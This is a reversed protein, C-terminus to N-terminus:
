DLLYSKLSQLILISQKRAQCKDEPSRGKIDKEIKYLEGIRILVERVVPDPHDHDYSELFKRRAHAWCTLLILDIGTLRAIRRYVTYADARHEVWRGTAHSGFLIVKEPDVAKVIIGAIERLQNQKHEPLHELSTNV